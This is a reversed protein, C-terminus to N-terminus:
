GEIYRTCVFRRRVLHVPLCAAIDRNDTYKAVLYVYDGGFDKNIYEGDVANSSDGYVVKLGSVYSM